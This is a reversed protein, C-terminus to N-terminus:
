FRYSAGLYIFDQIATFKSNILDFDDLEPDATHESRRVSNVFAHEWAVDFEWNDYAYGWGISVHDETIAPLLPLMSNDEIMNDGHNYGARLVHGGDLQYELGVAFVEQDDWNLPLTAAITDSGTLFNIKPDSGNALITKFEKFEKSYSIYKYDVGVLLRPTAQLAIGIGLIEPLEFDKITADYYGVYLRDNFDAGAGIPPPSAVIAQTLLRGLGGLGAIERTYDVKAKGKYDSMYTHPTYTAGFTLQDSPKWMVGVRGGVGWSVLDTIWARGSIEQLGDPGIPPDDPDLQRALGSHMLVYSLGFNVASFPGPIGPGKLITFPQAVQANLKMDSYNINLAVGFSLDETLQVAFTPALSILAFKTFYTTGEPFLRTRLSVHNGGGGQVMIGVGFAFKSQFDNHPLMFDKMSHLEDESLYETYHDRRVRRDPRGTTWVIGFNPIAALDHPADEDDNADEYHFQPIFINMPSDSRTGPPLQVLGAPNTNIATTDRAIAIDVGARGGAKPGNALPLIGNSAEALGALAVLWLLCYWGARPARVRRRDRETM